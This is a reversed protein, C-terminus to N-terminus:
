FEHSRPDSDSHMKRALNSNSIVHKRGWKQLLWIFRNGIKFLLICMRISFCTKFIQYTCFFQVHVGGGGGGLKFQNIALKKGLQNETCPRTRQESHLFDVIVVVIVVVIMIVEIVMSIVFYQQEDNEM